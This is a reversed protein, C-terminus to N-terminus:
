RRLEENMTLPKPKEGLPSAASKPLSITFKVGKNMESELIIDGKMEKIIDRCIAM